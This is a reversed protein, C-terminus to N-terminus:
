ATAFTELGAELLAAEFDKFFNGGDTPSEIRNVMGKVSFDFQDNLEQQGLYWLALQGRLIEIHFAFEGPRCHPSDSYVEMAAHFYDDSFMNNPHYVPVGTDQNTEGPTHTCYVVRNHYGYKELTERAADMRINGQKDCGVVEMVLRQLGDEGVATKYVPTILFHHLGRNGLERGIREFTKAIGTMSQGHLREATGDVYGAAQAKLIDTINLDGIRPASPAAEDALKYLRRAVDDAHHFDSATFM